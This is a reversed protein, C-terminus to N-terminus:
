LHSTAIVELSSRGALAPTGLPTAFGKPQGPALALTALRDLVANVLVSSELRVLPAGLCFHRGHGFTLHAPSPPRNLVFRGSDPFVREDHNASALALWVLQGDPISTGRIASGGTPIRGVGLAPPDLRLCEEIARDVLSRDAKLQNFLDCDLALYYMMSALHSATTEVGGVILTVLMARRSSQNLRNGDVQATILQKIADDYKDPEAEREAIAADIWSVMEPHAAELGEGYETRNTAVFGSSVFFNTWEWFKDAIEEQLGLLRAMALAPMQHTVEAVFDGGGREAIPELLDASIQELYPKLRRIYPPKVVNAMLKRLWPHRPPDVEFLLLEHEDAEVGPAKGAGCSLFSDPTRIVQSIDDFGTVLYPGSRLHAVPCAARFQAFLEHPSRDQAMEFPDYALLREVDAAGSGDTM